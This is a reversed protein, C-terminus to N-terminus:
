TQQCPQYPLELYAFVARREADQENAGAATVLPVNNQGEKIGYLTVLGMNILDKQTIKFKPRQFFEQNLKALLRDKVDRLCDNDLKEYDHIKDGTAYTLGLERLKQVAAKYLPETIIKKTMEAATGNIEALIYEGRTLDLARLSSGYGTRTIDNWSNVANRILNQGSELNQIIWENGRSRDSRDRKIIIVRKTVYDSNPPTMEQEFYEMKIKELMEKVLNKDNKTADELTINYPNYIYQIMNFAINYGFGKNNPAIKESVFMIGGFFAELVDEWLHKKPAIAKTRNVYAGLNLKKSIEAQIPKSVYRIQLNNLEEDSVTPYKKLIYDYFVNKMTADGLKELSEYNELANPNVNAATFTREWIPMVDNSVFKEIFQNIIPEQEPSSSPIVNKFIKRILDKILLRWEEKNIPQDKLDITVTNVTEDSHKHIKVYFEEPQRYQTQQQRYQAQQQRYQTQQQPQQPQKQPQQLTSLRSTDFTLTGLNTNLQSAQTTQSSQKPKPEVMTALRAPQTQSAPNPWYVHMVGSNGLDYATKSFGQVDKMIYGPPGRISILKCHWCKAVWEEMLLDGFKINSKIYDAKQSVRGPIEMATWPPDFIVVIAGQGELDQPVGLFEGEIQYRSSDFGYDQMNHILMQRRQDNIEHGIVLKAKANPYANSPELLFRTQGGIGAAADIFIFKDYAAQPNNGLLLSFFLDRIQRARKPSTMYEITDADYNRGQVPKITVAAGKVPVVIAPFHSGVKQELNGRVPRDTFQTSLNSQPSTM